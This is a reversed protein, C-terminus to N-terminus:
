GLLVVHNMCDPLFPNLIRFLHNNQQLTDFSIWILLENGM